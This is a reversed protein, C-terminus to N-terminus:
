GDRKGQGKARTKLGPRAERIKFEGVDDRLLFRVITRNKSSAIGVLANRPV